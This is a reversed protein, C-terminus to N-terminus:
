MKILDLTYGSTVVSDTSDNVTITGSSSVTFSSHMNNNTGIHLGRIIFSGQGGIGTSSGCRLAAPFTEAIPYLVVEDGSTQKIYYHLPNNRIDTMNDAIVDDYLTKMLQAWTKVGDATVTGLVTEHLDAKIADLVTQIDEGQWKDVDFPEGTTVAVTCVYRNGEFTVVDGVSYTSTPSYADAVAVSNYKNGIATGQSTTTNVLGVIANGQTEVTAELTNVRGGLTGVDEAAGNATEVANAADSTATAADSVAGWVATDIAEAAENYDMPTTLDTGLPLPIAYHTTQNTYM